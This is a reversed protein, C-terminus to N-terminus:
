LIDEKIAEELRERPLSMNTLSLHIEILLWGHREISFAVPQEM